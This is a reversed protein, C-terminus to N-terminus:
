IKGTRLIQNIYDAAIRAQATRRKAIPMIDLTAAWRTNFPTPWGQNPHATFLKYRENPTLGLLDSAREISTTLVLSNPLALGLKENLKRIYDTLLFGNSYVPIIPIGYELIDIAGALCAATGCPAIRDREKVIDQRYRRPEALIYNRVRRLIRRTEPTNKM